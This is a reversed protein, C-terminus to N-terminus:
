LGVHDVGFLACHARHWCALAKKVSFSQAGPVIVSQSCFARHLGLYWKTATSWHRPAFPSVRQIHVPIKRATDRSCTVVPHTNQLRTSPSHFSATKARPMISAPPQVSVHLLVNRQVTRSSCGSDIANDIPTVLWRRWLTIAASRAQTTQVSFTHIFVFFSSVRFCETRPHSIREFFSEPFSHIFRVVRVSTPSPCAVSDSSVISDESQSVPISDLPADTNPFHARMSQRPFKDVTRDCLAHVNIVRAVPFRITSRGILTRVSQADVRRMKLHDTGCFVGSSSLRPSHARVLMRNCKLSEGDCGDARHARFLVDNVRLVPPLPRTPLVASFLSPRM